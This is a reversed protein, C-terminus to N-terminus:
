YHSRHFPDLDMTGLMVIGDNKILHMRLTLGLNGGIPISSAVYPAGSLDYVIGKRYIIKPTFDDPFSNDKEHSCKGALLHHGPDRDSRELTVPPIPQWIDFWSVQTPASPSFTCKKPELNRCPIKKFEALSDVPSSGGGPILLYPNENGPGPNLYKLSVVEVSNTSSNHIRSWEIEGGDGEDLFSIKEILYSGGYHGHSIESGFITLDCGTTPPTEPNDFPRQLVWLEPVLNGGGYWLYTYNALKNFRLVLAENLNIQPHKLDWYLRPIYVKSLIYSLNSELVCTEVQEWIGSSCNWQDISCGPDMTVTTLKWAM